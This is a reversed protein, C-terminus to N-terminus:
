WGNLNLTTLDRSKVRRPCGLGLAAWLLSESLGVDNWLVPCGAYGM